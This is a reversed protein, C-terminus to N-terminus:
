VGHMANWNPPLMTMRGEEFLWVNDNRRWSTPSLGTQYEEPTRENEDGNNM